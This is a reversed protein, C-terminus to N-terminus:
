YLAGPMALDERHEESFGAGSTILKCPMEHFWPAPISSPRPYRLWSSRSNMRSKEKYVMRRQKM